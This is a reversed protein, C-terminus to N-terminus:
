SFYSARIRAGTIAHILEKPRVPGGVKAFVNEV